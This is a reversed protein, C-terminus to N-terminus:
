KKVELLSKLLDVLETLGKFRTAKNSAIEKMEGHWCNKEKNFWFRLLVSFVRVNRKKM